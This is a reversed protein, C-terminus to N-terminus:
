VGLNKSLNLFSCLPISCKKCQPSIFSSTFLTQCATGPKCKAVAYNLRSGSFSFKIQVTKIFKIMDPFEYLMLFIKCKIDFCPVFYITIFKKCLLM